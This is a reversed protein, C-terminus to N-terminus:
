SGSVVEELGRLAEDVRTRTARRLFFGGTRSLGRLKQTLAITVRTGEGAPEVVVETVAEGLVREFPTGALEQEWARRGPREGGPEPPESALLRFDMRVSRGKRTTFVQTFRDDEVAEMRKVDPWWRPMHYPDSVVEWVQEAPVDVTRSRRVVPM